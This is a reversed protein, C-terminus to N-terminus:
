LELNEFGTKKCSLWKKLAKTFLEITKNTDVTSRRFDFCHEVNSLQYGFIPNKPSSDQSCEPVKSDFNAKSDPSFPSLATWPDFQGATWFTRSPRMNWGGYKKNTGDADPWSRILRKGSPSTFYTTCYDQQYTINKDSLVIQHKGKNAVHFYGWENCRQWTWSIDNPDIEKARFTPQGNPDLPCDGFNKTADKLATGDQLREIVFNVGRKAAWGESGSSNGTAPDTAIHNCLNLLAGSVGYSQFDKFMSAMWAAFDGNSVENPGCGLLKRKLKRSQKPDQLRQDIEKIAASIDAACAPNSANMGQWVQEYYGPMGISAQVPASSAYAAFITQPYLQRMLAAMIGPYSGGVSIWPTDKPTLKPYTKRSFSWAFVDVDKLALDTTHWQFDVDSRNQINVGEPISKGYYRHEMVIGMGNFNKLLMEFFSLNEDTTDKGSSVFSLSDDGNSEGVHYLFVPGGNKYFRDKVWFRNCFKKSKPDSHNLPLLIGEAPPANAPQESGTPPCGKNEGLYNQVPSDITAATSGIWFYISILLYLPSRM